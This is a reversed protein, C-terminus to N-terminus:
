TKRALWSASTEVLWSPFAAKGSIGLSNRFRPSLANAAFVAGSSIAAAAVSAIAGNRTAIAGIHRTESETLARDRHRAPQLAAETVARPREALERGYHRTNLDEVSGGDVVESM